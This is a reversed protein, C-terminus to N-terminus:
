LNLVLDGLPAASCILVEGDGPQELPAQVYTTSGAVVGTVCV